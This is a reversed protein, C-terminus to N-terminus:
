SIQYACLSSKSMGIIDVMKEIENTFNPQWLYTMICFSRPDPILKGYWSSLPKNELQSIQILLFVAAFDYKPM